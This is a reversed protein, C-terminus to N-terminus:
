FNRAMSRACKWRGTGGSDIQGRHRVATIGLLWLVAKQTLGTVAAICICMQLGVCFLPFCMSYLHNTFILMSLVYIVSQMYCAVKWYM